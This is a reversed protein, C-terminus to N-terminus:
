KRAEKGKQRGEGAKGDKREKGKGGCIAFGAEMVSRLLQVHVILLRHRRFGCGLLATKDAKRGAMVVSAVWIDTKATEEREQTEKWM